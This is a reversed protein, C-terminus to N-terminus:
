KVDARKWDNATDFIAVDLIDPLKGAPAAADVADTYSLQPFTALAITGDSQSANFDAM